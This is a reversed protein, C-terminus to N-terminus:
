GTFRPGAVVGAAPTPTTTTSPKTTTTTPTPFTNAITVTASQSQNAVNVTIPDAQPGAASCVEVPEPKASETVEGSTTSTTDSEDVTSACAYSTSTAGGTETETVSCTTDKGTDLEVTAETTPQGTSDFDVTATDTKDQGQGIVDDACKITATFTTGSPVVGSVTKVVTITRSPPAGFAVQSVGLAGVAALSAAAFVGVIRSKM